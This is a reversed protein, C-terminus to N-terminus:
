IYKGGVGWNERGAISIYVNDAPMGCVEGALDTCLKVLKELDAFTSEKYTLIDLHMCKDAPQPGFAMFVGDHISLMLNEFTKGPVVTIIEGLRSALTKKQQESLRAGTQITIFPM